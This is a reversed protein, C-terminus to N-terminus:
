ARNCADVLARVVIEAELAPIRVQVTCENGGPVPGLDAPYLFRIPVADEELWHNLALIEVDEGDSWAALAYPVNFKIGREPARGQGEIAAELAWYYAHSCSCSAEEASLLVGPSLDFRLVRGEVLGARATTAYTTTFADAQQAFFARNDAAIQDLIPEALSLWGDSDGAPDSAADCVMKLLGRAVAQDEHKLGVPSLTPDRACLAAVRGWALDARSIEDGWFYAWDGGLVIDVGRQLLDPLRPWNAEHRNLLSVQTQCAQWAEITARQQTTVGPEPRDGIVVLRDYVAPDTGALVKGWLWGTGGATDPYCLLEVPQGAAALHRRSLAAMVLSNPEFPFALLAPRPAIAATGTAPVQTPKSGPTEESRGSGAVIEEVSWDLPTSDLDGHLMAVQMNEAVAERMFVQLNVDPTCRIRLGLIEELSTWFPLEQPFFMKLVNAFRESYDSRRHDIDMADAVRLISAMLGTRVTEGNELRDCHEPDYERRHWRCILGVVEAEKATLPLEGKATLDNVTAQSITHHAARDLANGIDHFLAGARLLMHETQSLGMIYGFQSAFSKVRFAHGPGHDSFESMRARAFQLIPVATRLVAIDKESYTRGTTLLANWFQAPLTTRSKVRGMVVDARGDPLLRIRGANVLAALAQRVEASDRELAQALGKAEAPGNRTIHLVIENQLAPLELLDLFSFDADANMM